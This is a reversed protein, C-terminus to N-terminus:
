VILLMYIPPLESIDFSKEFIVKKNVVVKTGKPRSNADYVLIKKMYNFTFLEFHNNNYYLFLYKKWKNYDTAFNSFPIKIDFSTTTKSSISIPIINLKLKDCLAYISIENAWYYNSLIYEKLKEKTIPKFPKEYDEIHIPVSDINAVLFNENSKYTDNALEIYQENSIDDPNGAERLTRKIGNISQSFINNLNDANVPAINILKEDLEPWTEM